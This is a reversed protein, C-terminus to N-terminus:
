NTCNARIQYKVTEVAEAVTSAVAERAPISGPTM